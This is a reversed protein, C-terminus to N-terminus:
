GRIVFRPRKDVGARKVRDKINEIICVIHRLALIETFELVDHEQREQTQSVPRIARHDPLLDIGGGSSRRSYAGHMRCELAEFAFAEDGRPNTLRGRLAAAFCFAMELNLRRANGRQLFRAFRQFAEM